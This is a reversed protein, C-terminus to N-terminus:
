TLGDAFTLAPFPSSWCPRLVEFRKLVAQPREFQEAGVVCVFKAHDIDGVTEPDGTGGRHADEVGRFIKASYAARPAGAAKYWAHRRKAV